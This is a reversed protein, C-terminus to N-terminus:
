ARLNTPARRSSSSKTWARFEKSRRSAALIRLSPHGIHPRRRVNAIEARVYRNTCDGAGCVKSPLGNGRGYRTPSTPSTPAAPADGLALSGCAGPEFRATGLRKVSHMAHVGHVAHIDWAAHSISVPSVLAAVARHVQSLTMQDWYRGGCGIFSSRWFQEATELTYRVPPSAALGGTRLLIMDEFGLLQLPHPNAFHPTRGVRTIAM